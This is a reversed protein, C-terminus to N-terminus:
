ACVRCLLLRGMGAWPAARVCRQGAMPLGPVPCSPRLRRSDQWSHRRCGAHCRGHSSGNGRERSGPEEAGRALTLAAGRLLARALVRRGRGLASGLADAPHWLGGASSGFQRHVLVSLLPVCSSSVSSGPTTKCSATVAVFSERWCHVWFGGLHDWKELQRGLM